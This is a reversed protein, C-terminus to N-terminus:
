RRAEEQDIRLVVVPPFWGFCLDFQMKRIIKGKSSVKCYQELESLRSFQKRVVPTTNDRQGM